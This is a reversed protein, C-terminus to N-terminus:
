GGAKERLRKNYAENWSEVNGVSMGEKALKPPKDMPTRRTKAWEPHTLELEILKLENSRELADSIRALTSLLLAETEYFM